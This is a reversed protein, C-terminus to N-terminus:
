SDLFVMYFEKEQQSKITISESTQTIMYGEAKLQNDNTYVFNIKINKNELEKTHYFKNLEEVATQVCRHKSFKEDIEISLNEAQGLVEKSVQKEDLWCNYM